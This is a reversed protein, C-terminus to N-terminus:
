LDECALVGDGYTGALVGFLREIAHATSGDLPLPEAPFDEPTIQLGRLEEVLGRTIWFMTGAPFRFRFPLRQIGLQRALRVTTKLNRGWDRTGLIQAAPATIFEKGGLANALVAHVVNADTLTQIMSTRWAHGDARHSSVKTHLKLIVHAGSLRGQNVLTLFPLVDRGHNDVGIVEGTLGFTQLLTTVEAPPSTTTVVLDPTEGTTQILQAIRALIEPLVELYHAHIVVALRHTM